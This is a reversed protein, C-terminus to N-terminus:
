VYREEGSFNNVLRAIAGIAQKARRPVALSNMILGNSQSVGLALPLTHFALGNTDQCFVAWRIGQNAWKEAVGHTYMLAHIDGHGHPKAQIKYRDKPDLAIRAENDLLAPVGDGQQILSVQDTDMGFYKNDELLKVTGANTDNSVMICLPLKMGKVAYNNQIALITEIYYQLYCTETTMETPLGLKIGSYGLREGLGGAVVVFGCSGVQDMGVKEMATFHATGLEYIQGSKPVHPTWDALPNDGRASAILLEKANAIYKLLGGRNAYGDDMAELQKMFNVKVKAVANASPTNPTASPAPWHEFLHSQGSQCLSIALKQQRESLFSLSAALGEPIVSEEENEEEKVVEKELLATIKGAEVNEKGEHNHGNVDSISDRETSSLPDEVVEESGGSTALVRTTNMKSSSGNKKKNKNQRRRSKKGM